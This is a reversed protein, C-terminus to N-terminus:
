FLNLQQFHHNALGPLIDLIDGAPANGLENPEIKHLGGGYIRGEGMLVDAPIENLVQWVTRLVEPKGNIKQALAPKPYLMLYVNPATAQSHNLIFRFPRGISSKRGMYTCLLPSAPRDEQAYWPFRHRCLYRQDIGQQVGKQFYEWLSPYKSKVENESLKCALLWLQRDLVPNGNDNTEVEDALLYRPSPLIPILFESPLEYKAIQQDTLIFFKNAGTVLGRKIKFLDSLKLQHKDKIIVSVRPFSSWKASGRLIDTPIHGTVEPEAL